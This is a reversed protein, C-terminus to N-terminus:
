SLFTDSSMVQSKDNFVQQEITNESTNKIVTFYEWIKNYAWGEKPSCLPIPCIYIYTYQLTPM